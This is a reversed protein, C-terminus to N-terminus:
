SSTTAEILNDVLRSAIGDAIAFGAPALAVRDPPAHLVGGHVLLDVTDPSVDLGTRARLRARDVGEIGRLGSILLDAAAEHPAPREVQPLPPGHDLYHGLDPRNQWRAGDSRYSHAAPGLGLYPRDTWYLRNHRSEHGPRAFNSIEYRAIGERELREVIHQYMTHWADPDVEMLRGRAHARGFATDPEITLGYLSIHPVGADLLHDLDHDLDAITQGPVAFILDASWSVLPAAHLARLAEAAQNRTHARGLRKAHAEQLSQVGLSIRTAGAALVGELWDPALDEPNAEVTVESRAGIGEILTALARSPLQSPTGGGVYLTAPTGPFSSQHQEREELVRAVFREARPVQGTVVYFACYPCQVRCWPVHVYCGWDGNM